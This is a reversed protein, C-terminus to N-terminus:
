SIAMDHFSGSYLLPAVERLGVLHFYTLHEKHKTPASRDVLVTSDGDRVESVKLVVVNPVLRVNSTSM